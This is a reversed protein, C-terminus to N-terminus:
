SCNGFGKVIVRFPWALNEGTAAHWVHRVMRFGGSNGWEMGGQLRMKDEETLGTRSQAARGDADM